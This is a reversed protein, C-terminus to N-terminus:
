SLVDALEFLLQQLSLVVEREEASAQEVDKDTHLGFDSASARLVRQLSSLWAWAEADNLFGDDVSLLALEVNSAALRQRELQRLPDDDDRSPDIPTSLPAYWEHESDEQASMLLSFQEKIFQRGWENLRVEIRGDRRRIFITTRGV